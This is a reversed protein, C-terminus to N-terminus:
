INYNGTFLKKDTTKKKWRLNINIIVSQKYISGDHNEVSVFIIEQVFRM